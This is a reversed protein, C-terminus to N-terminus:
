PPLFDRLPQEAQLEKQSVSFQILGNCVIIFCLAIGIGLNNPDHYLGYSVFSLAAALWLLLSFPEVM